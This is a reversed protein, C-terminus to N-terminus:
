DKVIKRVGNIAKLKGIKILKNSDIYIQYDYVENTENNVIFVGKKTNLIYGKFEKKNIDIFEDEDEVNKVNANDQINVPFSYCKLKHAHSNLGCDVAATKLLDLMQDIVKKKNLAENYIYQDSTLGKDQSQITFSNEIQNATYKINYIFVEVNRDEPPLRTHSCTRVARGIIQDIRVYNWYPELIHVQRVEKLSIGEAGSVTIMIIDIINKGSEFDLQKKISDPINNKDMNYIKLLIGMDEKTGEFIMFKPKNNLSEPHVVWEGNEKKIKFESWGNKLLILRMIGVGEIMRFQTYILAKKHEKLKILIEKMKPSLEQLNDFHLYNKNSKELNKLIEQIKKNHVVNKNENNEEGLNKALNKLIEEDVKNNSNKENFPDSPFPRKFNEPFIFNGFARSYFRYVSSNSSFQNSSQELKREKSRAKEYLSFQRDNMAVEIENIKISPYLSKDYNSYYSVVGLIKKAFLKKNDVQKKEKNYFLDDFEKETEPFIKYKKFNVSKIKNGKLYNTVLNIIDDNDLISGEYRGIKLTKRNKYVFGLPLLKVKLHKNINDIEVTDVYPIKDLLDYTDINLNGLKIYYDYQLGTLINIIFGIEYSKNIIPTGSLLILKCNKAEMLLKYLATGVKGKNVIRSILNHIEDIIICKNDFPNGNKIMDSIYTNKKSTDSPSKEKKRQLRLGNYNIFDFSNNIMTNIQNNIESKEIESLTNYNPKNKSNPLWVRKTKPSLKLLKFFSEKEYNPVISSEGEMNISGWYQNLQYFRKGCKKIEQIYNSRLSAPTMIIVNMHNLLIEAAAISTCSKGIGVGQYLLLGRYPSDFQIYDKIFKQYPFLNISDVIPCLDGTCESCKVVDRTDIKYKFTQEIFNKTFKSKNPLVWGDPSVEIDFMPHNARHILKQIKDM